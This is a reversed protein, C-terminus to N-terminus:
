NTTRITASAHRQTKAYFLYKGHIFTLVCMYQVIYLKQADDIMMM